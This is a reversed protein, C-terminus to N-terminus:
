YFSVQVIVYSWNQIGTFSAAQFVQQDSPNLNMSEFSNYTETGLVGENSGEFILKITQVSHKKNDANSILGNTIRDSTQNMNSIYFDPLKIGTEFQAIDLKDSETHLSPVATAAQSQNKEPQANKSYLYGGVGGLGLVIIGALLSIAITTGKM